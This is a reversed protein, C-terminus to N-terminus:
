GRRRGVVAYVPDAYIRQPFYKDNVPRPLGRVSITELDSYRGTQRFYESVLGMREFDHLEPWIRIAKPPFWRDSFTVLLPAGPRLVRALEAFVEWPRTLYEVSVSCLAADFSEAAFPLAPERNLDHVTRATLQANADLESENMGLGTLSALSLDEPVHSQWSSMLDLVAMGPALYEKYVKRIVGAAADDIHQVLRPHRYFEADDAEDPRGFPDDSFFDTSRGDFRAQMGPGDTLEEIWARCTGGREGSKERVATVTMDLTLTKGALPHNLDVSLSGNEASLCRFPEVNQPFVNPLGSLLGRPYFRGRRPEIRRGMRRGDFRSRPIRIRRGADEAPQFDGPEAVMRAGQGVTGGELEARVRDPLLDRWLNVGRAEYVELHRAGGSQWSLDM